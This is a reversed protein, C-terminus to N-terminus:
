SEKISSRLQERGPLVRPAQMLFLAIWVCITFYASHWLLFGFGWEGYVKSENVIQFADVIARAGSRIVPYGNEMQDLAGAWNEFPLHYFLGYSCYFVCWAAIILTSKRLMNLRNSIGKEKVKLVRRYQMIALPLVSLFGFTWLTEEIALLLKSKTMMREIDNHLHNHVIKASYDVQVQYAASYFFGFDPFRTYTGTAIPVPWKKGPRTLIWLTGSSLRVILPPQKM